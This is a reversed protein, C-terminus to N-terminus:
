KAGKNELTLKLDNIIDNLDAAALDKPSDCGYDKKVKAVWAASEELTFNMLKKLRTLEKLQEATAYEAAKILDTAPQVPEIKAVPKVTILNDPEIIKASPITEVETEDLWGLGCLSLTARRKAKTIAKMHANALAEGRLGALAVCGIDSDERGTKDKVVATVTVIDNTVITSISIVSVGNIARLQDTCARLAYLTLKGNLVIYGLPRTHPNLGLSKCVQLYHELKEDNTLLNLDGNVMAIDGKNTSM